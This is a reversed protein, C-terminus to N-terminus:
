VGTGAAEAASAWRAGDQYAHNALALIFTRGAGTVRSTQAVRMEGLNCSPADGYATVTAEPYEEALAERLAVLAGTAPPTTGDATTLYIHSACARDALAHMSLFVGGPGSAGLTAELTAMLMTENRQTMDSAWGGDTAPMARGHSGAWAVSRGGELAGFMGTAHEGSDTHDYPYPALLHLDRGGTVNIAYGGWGRDSHGDLDADEVEAVVCVSGHPGPDLPTIEVVGRLIPPVLSRACQGTSLVASALDTWNERQSGDPAVYATSAIQGMRRKLCGYVSAMDFTPCPWAPNRGGFAANLDAAAVATATGDREVYADDSEIHIFTRGRARIEMGQVNNAGTLSCDPDDAYANVAAGPGHADRLEDRLNLV